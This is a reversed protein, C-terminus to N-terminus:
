RLWADGPAVRGGLRRDPRVQTPDQHDALLQIVPHDYANTGAARQHPCGARDQTDPTVGPTEM